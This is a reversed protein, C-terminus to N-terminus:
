EAAAALSDAPHAAGVAIASGELRLRDRLLRALRTECELDAVAVRRRRLPPSAAEIAAWAAGFRNQQLSTQLQPPELGLRAALAAPASGAAFAARAARRLTARLAAAAVGELRDDLFLDPASLRRRITDAMGGAARGITRGSVTVWVDPAHRIRCDHRRLRDVFGRDEGVPLPAMGGVQRWIAVPVCLSAGSAEDHRPWPDAPDPDLLSAIEDLLAAYACERADAQHLAEPIARAEHPDLVARGAVADAGAALAALNEAIWGPPAVSDADTTLIVGDPGALAAARQMAMSRATGAHAQPPPLDVCRLDVHLPLSPVLARVIGATDDRCNNLLLAVAPPPADQQRALGRLCFAIRAAEDRVPIAVAVPRTLFKSLGSRQTM